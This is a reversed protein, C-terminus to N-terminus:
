KGNGQVEDFRRSIYSGILEHNEEILSKLTYDAQIEQKGDEAYFGGLINNGTEQLLCKDKLKGSSIIQNIFEGLNEMDWKTFYLKVSISDEFVDGARDLCVSLYGRYGEERVFSMAKKTILETLENILQQKKELLRHYVQSRAKATIHQKEKEAKKVAEEIIRNRKAEVEIILRQKEQEFSERTKQMKKSVSEEIERFIINRFLEIKDEVSVSM